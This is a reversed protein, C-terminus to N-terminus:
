RKQGGVLEDDKRSNQKQTRSQQRAKHVAVVFAVYALNIVVATFVYPQGGSGFAYAHLGEGLVFNVGYWSMLVGSFSVVSWVILGFTKILGAFRAHLVALYGLLAILAWVEKPDWGWFRGWSYAAWWGGLITGAALLLVGVQICRYIYLAIPKVNDPRDNGFLYYTLGVNGLMWALMLAGYSAVITLVHIILWFNDRLVPVLPDISSGYEPPM